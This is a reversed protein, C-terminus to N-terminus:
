ATEKSPLVERLMEMFDESCPRIKRFREANFVKCPPEPQAEKLALGVTEPPDGGAELIAINEANLVSGIAVEAVTYATGEKLMPTGDANICVAKDGAMWDDSM